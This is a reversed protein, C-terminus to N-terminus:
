DLFEDSLKDMDRHAECVQCHKSLVEVDLVKGTDWSAVVVVGYLSQFSRRAWTGDCTVTIDIVDDESADICLEAAAAAFSAEREKLSPDYLKKNHSAYARKTIPPLMGMLGCFTELATRGKGIARM